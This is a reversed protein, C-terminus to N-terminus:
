LRLGLLEVIQVVLSQTCLMACDSAATVIARDDTPIENKQSVPTSGGTSHGMHAAVSFNANIALFEIFTSESSFCLGSM